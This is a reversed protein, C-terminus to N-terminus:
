KKNYKRNGKSIVTMKINNTIAYFIVTKSFFVRAAIILLYGIIRIYIKLIGYGFPM